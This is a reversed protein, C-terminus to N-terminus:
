GPRVPFARVDEPTDWDRLQAQERVDLELEVAGTALEGFVAQLASQGRSLLERVVPLVEGPRYRAFLPQWRGDQRPALAAAAVHEGLLRELLAADLHPMDVALAVALCRRELAAVLLANLGGLPGVGPPLDDLRQVGPAAYAHSDGILVVGADRSEHTAHRARLAAHCLEITRVLLPQGGADLNGKPVGGMRRGQGGVLIGFLVPSM